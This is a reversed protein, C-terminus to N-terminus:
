KDVWGPCFYGCLGCNVCGPHHESSDAKGNLSLIKKSRPVKLLVPCIEICIGCRCCQSLCVPNDSLVSILNKGTITEKLNKLPRGYLPDGEIILRAGSIGIRGLLTQLTMDRVAKVYYVNNENLVCIIHSVTEGKLEMSHNYLSLCNEPSIILTGSKGPFYDKKQRLCWRAFVEEMGLPYRDNLLKEYVNPTKQVLPLMSSLLKKNNKPLYVVGVESGFATMFMELGLIIKHSEKEALISRLGSCPSIELQNLIIRGCGTKEIKSTESPSYIGSKISLNRIEERGVYGPLKKIKGEGAPLLNIETIKKPSQRINLKARLTKM